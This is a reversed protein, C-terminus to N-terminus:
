KKLRFKAPNTFRIDKESKQYKKYKDSMYSIAHGSKVMKANVDGWRKIVILNRGWKCYGIFEVTCWKGEVLKKLYQTSEYGYKQKAEPADIGVLRCNHGNIKVTDGDIVQDIKLKGFRFVMYWFFCALFFLAIVEFLTM